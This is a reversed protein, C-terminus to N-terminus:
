VMWIGLGRIRAVCVGDFGSSGGRLRDLGSGSFMLFQVLIRQLRAPRGEFWVDQIEM